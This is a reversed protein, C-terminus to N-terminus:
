FSVDVGGSVRSTVGSGPVAPGDLSGYLLGEYAMLVRWRANAVTMWPLDQFVALDLRRYALSGTGGAADSETEEMVRRYDIRLETDTPEFLARLTTLCYRAEGAKLSQLPAEDLVPALRGVVRVISGALSGRVFGFVRQLEVEMEHRGAAAGALVLMGGDPFGPAAGSGEEEGIEQFPMYSVTAAFQLRDEPRREVGIEYGLRAADVRADGRWGGRPESAPGEDVRYVVASRMRLDGPGSLTRTLGVRPVLYGGGTSLDNHYGLGYNLVYGEALRWDDRGFLRVASGREGGELPAGGSGVSSLLAGSDGLDYRYSHVHLGVGVDHEDAKFTLGAAAGLSRDVQGDRGFDGLPPALAPNQEPSPQRVGAELYSGAIHLLADQSLRRDWRARVGATRQDQDIADASGSADLLYRSVGYRLRAQLRDGSDLRCDLALGLGSSRRARRVDNDGDLAAATRGTVGDFRWAGQEGVAGRLDLRTTRSSSDGAGPGGGGFLEAGGLDQRFEGGVPSWGKAPSVVHAEYAVPIPATGGDEVPGEVSAERDRLVDGEPHRLIWDLGRDRSAADELPRAPPRDAASMRVEVLNRAQLNVESLSVEYGPKFAAIRYRGIPLLASFSGDAASKVVRGAGDGPAAASRTRAQTDAAYRPRGVPTLFITADSVGAGLADIVQGTLPREQALAPPSVGAFIILFGAVALCANGTRNRM